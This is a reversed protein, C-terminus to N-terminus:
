RPLRLGYGHAHPRACLTHTEFTATAPPTCFFVFCYLPLDELSVQARGAKPACGCWVARARMTGNSTDSRIELDFSKVEGPKVNKKLHVHLPVQEFGTKTIIGGPLRGHFRAPTRMRTCLNTSNASM